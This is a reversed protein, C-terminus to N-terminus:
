AAAAAPYFFSRLPTRVFPKWAGEPQALRDGIAYLVVPHHGMGIHSSRVEISEALPGPEQMCCQWAVVGDSRSFIATTSVPPPVELDLGFRAEDGKHGALFEYLGVVHNARLNGRFPRRETLLRGRRSSVIQEGDQITDHAVMQRRAFIGQGNVHSKVVRADRKFRFLARQLVRNGCRRAAQCYHDVPREHVVPFPLPLPVVVARCQGAVEAIGGDIQVVVASEINRCVAAGEGIQQLIQDRFPRHRQLIQADDAVAHTPEDRAARAVIACDGQMSPWPLEPFQEKESRRVMARRQLAAPLFEVQEEFLARVRGRQGPEPPHTARADGVESIAIKDILVPFTAITELQGAIPPSAHREWIFDLAVRDGRGDSFPHAVEAVTEDAIPEHRQAARQAM